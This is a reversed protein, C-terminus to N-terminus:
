RTHVTPSSMAHIWTSARPWSRAILGSRPNKPTAGLVLGFVFGLPVAITREWVIKVFTAIVGDPSGQHSPMVAVAGAPRTSQCPLGQCGPPPGAACGFERKVTRADCHGEIEGLQSSGSPTGIEPKMKPERRVWTIGSTKSAKSQGCPTNRPEAMLVSVVAAMVPWTPTTRRSGIAIIGNQPYLM